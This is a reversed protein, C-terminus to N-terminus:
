LALIRLFFLTRHCSLVFDSPLNLDSEIELDDVHPDSTFLTLYFLKFFSYTVIVHHLWKVSLSKFIAVLYYLHSPTTHSLIDCQNLKQIQFIDICYM